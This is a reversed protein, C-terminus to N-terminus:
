HSRRRRLAMLAFGGLGLLLGSPEPIVTGNVRVEALTFPNATGADDVFRISDAVSGATATVRLYATADDPITLGTFEEVLTAGSYLQVRFNDDREQCCVRRGYIDVFLNNYSGDFNFVATDDATSTGHFGTNPGTYDGPLPSTPSAPNYAFGDNTTALLQQTETGQSALPTTTLAEDGTLTVVAAHGATASALLTLLATSLSLSSNM